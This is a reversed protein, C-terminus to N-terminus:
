RGNPKHTLVYLICPLALILMVLEIHAENYTNITVLVTKDNLFYAVFFIIYLCVVCALIIIKGYIEAIDKLKM